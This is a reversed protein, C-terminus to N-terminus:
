DVRRHRRARLKAALGALGLGFLGITGPEPTPVLMENFPEHSFSEFCEGTAFNCDEGVGRYVLTGDISPPLSSQVYIVAFRMRDQESASVSIPEPVVIFGDYIPRVSDVPYTSGEGVHEPHWYSSSNNIAGWTEELPHGTVSFNLMRQGLIGPLESDSQVAYIYSYTGATLRVETRIFFVESTTDQVFDKTLVVPGLVSPDDIDIRDARASPPHVLMIATLLLLVSCVRPRDITVM